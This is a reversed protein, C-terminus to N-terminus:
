VEISWVAVLEGGVLQIIEFNNHQLAHFEVGQLSQRGYDHLIGCQSM